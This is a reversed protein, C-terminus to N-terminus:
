SRASTSDTRECSWAGVQPRMTPMRDLRSPLSTSTKRLSGALPASPPTTIMTASGRSSVNTFTTPVMCGSSTASSPPWNWMGRSRAENEDFLLSSLHAGSEQKSEQGRGADDQNAIRFEIMHHLRDFNMVMGFASVDRKEAQGVHHYFNRM